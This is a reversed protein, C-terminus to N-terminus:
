ADKSRDKKFVGEHAARQHSLKGVYTGFWRKCNQCYHKLAERYFEELHEQRVEHVIKNIEEEVDEWLGFKILLNKM